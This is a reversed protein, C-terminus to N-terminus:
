PNASTNFTYSTVIGKENFRVVLDKTTADGFLSYHYRGYTWTVKGDEIGVRWPPGFMGRLQEQTTENIHIETIRATPFDHGVNACGAIIFTAIAVFCWSGLLWLKNNRYKTFLFHAKKM